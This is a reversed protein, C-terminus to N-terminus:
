TDIYSNDNGVTNVAPSYTGATNASIANGVAYIRSMSLARFGWGVNYYATANPAYLSGAHIQASYGDGSNGQAFSGGVSLHGNTTAAFGIGGNGSSICNSAFLTGNNLCSFGRNTAASAVTDGADCRTANAEVGRYFGYVAIRDDNNGTRFWGNVGVGATSDTPGEVVLRNLLTGRAAFSRTLGNGTTSSFVLRSKLIIISGTMAGGPPNNRKHTCVVTVRTNVSDVNTIKWVGEFSRIYTGGSTSHVIIFDGVAMNEVSGVNSVVTYAGSSGSSSQISNLTTTYATKGQIVIRDANPHTISVESAEAVAEDQIEITVTATEAITKGTLSALAASVTTYDYGSAGVTITYSDYIPRITRYEAAVFDIWVEKDGASFDVASGGNSSSLPTTRTLENAGTYTGLGTEWQGTPQGVGDVAQISYYVTDSVACVAAFTRFGDPAGALTLPGTGTTTTAEKVRDAIILAM